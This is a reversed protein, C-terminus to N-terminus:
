DDTKYCFQVRIESNGSGQLSGPGDNFFTGNDRTGIAAYFQSTNERTETGFFLGSNSFDFGSYSAAGGTGQSTTCTFPLGTVLLAGGATGIVTASSRLQCDIFVRNGIKTYRGSQTSYTVSTFSGTTSGWSPSWTGEEYDDLVENQMGAANDKSSFDIGTAVNVTNAYVTNWRAGSAGLNKSGSPVFAGSNFESHTGGNTTLVELTDATTNYDFGGNTNNIFIRGKTILQRSSNIRLAETNSSGMRFVISGSDDTQDIYSNSGRKFQLANSTLKLEYGLSSFNGIHIESSPSTQGSLGINGGSWILSNSATIELKNSGEVLRDAPTVGLGIWKAGDWKYTISGETFTDNLTPSEPFEIAM